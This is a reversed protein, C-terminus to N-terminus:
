QQLRLTNGQELTCDWKQWGLTKTRCGSLWGTYEGTGRETTVLLREPDGCASTVIVGDVFRYPDVEGKSKADGIPIPLFGYAVFGQDQFFLLGNRGFYRKHTTADTIFLKGICRLTNGALVEPGVLTHKGAIGFSSMLQTATTSSEDPIRPYSACGIMGSAVVVVILLRYFTSIMRSSHKRFPLSASDTLLGCHFHTSLQKL